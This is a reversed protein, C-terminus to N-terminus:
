MINHVVVASALPFVRTVISKKEEPQILSYQGDRVSVSAASFVFAQSTHATLAQPM